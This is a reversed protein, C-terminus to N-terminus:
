WKWDLRINGHQNFLITDSDPSFEVNYDLMLSYCYYGITLGFKVNFLNWSEDWGVVEYPISAGEFSSELKPRSIPCMNVWGISILPSICITEAANRDQVQLGLGMETRFTQDTRGFVNLNLGSAGTESFSYTHLYLYDLNAYPYFFAQPSGFLYATSLQGMLDLAQFDGKAVRRTTIFDINRSTDYFDMGGLVAGGFYFDGVLSDFYVSGYFGNMTGNGRHRQWELSNNTWAGGFGLVLSDNVQGDYGLAVGGTNAQFGLEIGHNKVTLSNGLGEIWLRNPNNCCCPLYPLRHFLSILQGNVEAQMETFASYQAPHMQDLAENITSNSQGVFTNVINFLDTSLEGAAYLADINHGVAATNQNSFPFAAFPASIIMQLLVNNGVYSVTPAFASNTSTVPSFTGALASSTLITYSASFGYFAPIPEIQLSGSINANGTVAIRDSSTPAITINTNGGSYTLNGNINLTGVSTGQGPDLTGQNTTTGVTGTGSLTAGSHVTVASNALSGNVVLQGATIATSGSFSASSGSFTVTGTGLKTLQSSAPGSIAGSYTGDFNQSFTLLSTAASLSINGQLGSTTGALQTNAAVTTGGSYSNSGVLTFTGGGSFAMSGAGSFSGSFTNNGGSIVGASGFISGSRAITGEGLILLNATGMNLSGASNGLNSDSNSDSSIILTGGSITTGGQYTNAGGLTLSGTNSKTLSGSGSIVGNLTTVQGSAVQISAAGSLTFPRSNTDSMNYLLSGGVINTNTGAAGLNNDATISITGTDITFQGSYTASNNASLVLTGTGDLTIGSTGSLAGALTLSGTSGQVIDLAAGASIPANITYSGNGNTTTVNISAGSGSFTFVGSGGGPNITYSTGIDLNLQTLAISENNLTITTQSPAANTLNAIDGSM